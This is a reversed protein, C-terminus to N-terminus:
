NNCVHGIDHTSPKPHACQQAETLGKPGPELPEGEGDKLAMWCAWPDVSLGYTLMAKCVGSRQELSFHEQM